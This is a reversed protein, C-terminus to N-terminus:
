SHSSRHYRAALLPLERTGDMSLGVLFNNAKLFDCWQDDLKIGNTQLSNRVQMGAPAVEQQLEIVRRFYDLGMLTPEGGQFAFDIEEVGQPQAEIYQRVYTRLTEDSMKWSEGRPYLSEKELYFCYRCAINCIPGTPKAIVHLGLQSFDPASM